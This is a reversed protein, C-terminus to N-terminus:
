SQMALPLQYQKLTPKRTGNKTVFFPCKRIKIYKKGKGTKLLISFYLNSFKKNLM